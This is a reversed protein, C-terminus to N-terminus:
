DCAGFIQCAYYVILATVGIYSSPIGLKRLKCKSCKQTKENNKKTM